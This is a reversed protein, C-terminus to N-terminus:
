HTTLLMHIIHQTKNYVAHISQVLYVLPPLPVPSSVDDTYATSTFHGLLLLTVSPANADWCTDETSINPSAPLNDM